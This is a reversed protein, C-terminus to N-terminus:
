PKLIVDGTSATLNKGTETMIEITFQFKDLGSPAAGLFMTIGFPDVEHGYVEMFSRLTMTVGFQEVFLLESLDTDGLSSFYPKNAYVSIEKIHEFQPGASAYASSVFGHSPVSNLNSQEKYDLELLIRYDSYVLTDPGSFAVLASDAGSIKMNRAEVDNILVDWGPGCGGGLEDCSMTMGIFFYVTAVTLIKLIQSM